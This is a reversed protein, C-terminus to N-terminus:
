FIKNVNLKSQGCDHTFTCAPLGKQLFLDVTGLNSSNVLMGRFGGACAVTIIGWDHVKLFTSNRFYCSTPLM